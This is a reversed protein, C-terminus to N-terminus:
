WESLPLPEQVHTLKNPDMAVSSCSYLVVVLVTLYGRLIDTMWFSQDCGNM